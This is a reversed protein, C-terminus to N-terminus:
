KVSVLVKDLDVGLFPGQKVTICKSNENVRISHIGERILISDGSQLVSEQFLQGLDSYFQVSVEGRIVIFFQQTHCEERRISPHYHADEQFGAAHSMIGIQLPSDDSSFFTTSAVEVDARLIEAQIIGNYTVYELSMTGGKGIQYGLGLTDM